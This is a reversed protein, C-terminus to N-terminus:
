NEPEEAWPIFPARLKHYIWAEIPRLPRLAPYVPSYYLRLRLVSLLM